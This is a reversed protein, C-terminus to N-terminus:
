TILPVLFNVQTDYNLQTNKQIEAVTATSMNFAPGDGVNLLAIDISNFTDLSQQICNEAQSPCLADCVIVLAQSGNESIERSLSALESQRRASIILRNNHHSLLLAVQRGIGSSAGAILITKNSIM